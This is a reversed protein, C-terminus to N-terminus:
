RGIATRKLMQGAGTDQVTMPRYSFLVAKKGPFVEGDRVFIVGVGIGFCTVVLQFGVQLSVRVGGQQGADELGAM